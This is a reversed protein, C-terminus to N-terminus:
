CGTERHDEGQIGAPRKVYADVVAADRSVKEAELGILGFRPTLSSLAKVMLLLIPSVGDHPKILPASLIAGALASEDEILYLAGILGGMSHGVLLMPRDPQWQSVMKTFIRLTDTYDEFQEVYVRSGDSRGHGPHDIAYLAYGSPVLSNVLNMYRGGHEALGHVIVLSARPEGAPLWCQYFITAGRLGKIFGEQHKM